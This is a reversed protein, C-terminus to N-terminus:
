PTEEDNARKQSLHLAGLLAALLLVSLLEFPVVWKDFLTDALGEMTEQPPTEQQWADVGLATMLLGTLLFAAVLGKAWEHAM